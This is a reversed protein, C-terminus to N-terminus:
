GLASTRFLRPWWPMGDWVAGFHHMRILPVFRTAPSAGLAALWRPDDPERLDHGITQLNAAQTAQTRELRGWQVAIAMHAEHRVPGVEGLVAVGANDGLVVAEHGDARAWQAVMTSESAVHQPTAMRVTLPWVRGLGFALARASEATGDIVVIRKPSTCGAQGYISLVKALDRLMRDGIRDPETWAESVRHTFYIGVSDTAHPLRDVAMATDDNGFLIRADAWAAMGANRPDSRDFAQVTLRDLWDHLPGGIAKERLWDLFVSCLDRSRSGAKVRVQAGILSVLILTLPGLMSVNNPLWLAVKDMPKALHHAPARAGREGFTEFFVSELAHSDLFGILYAWEERSFEQCRDRVMRSRVAQWDALLHHLDHPLQVATTRRATRFWAPEYM